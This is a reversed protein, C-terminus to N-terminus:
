KKSMKILSEMAKDGDEASFVLSKGWDRQINDSPKASKPKYIGTFNLIFGGNEAVRLNVDEYDTYKEFDM